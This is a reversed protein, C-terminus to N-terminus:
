LNKILLERVQEVLFDFGFKTNPELVSAQQSTEIVKKEFDEYDGYKAFNFYEKAGSVKIIERITPYNYCVVRNGTAIAEAAWMGFGEFRSSNFLFKSKKLLEFKQYDTASYYADIRDRIDYKAATEELEKTFQRSTIIQLRWKSNMKSFARFCEDYHKRDVLRSIYTVFNEKKCNPVTNMVRSNVVPYVIDIDKRNRKLWKDSHDRTLESIVVIKCDSNRIEKVMPAVYEKESKYEGPVCKEVYPLPDFIFCLAKKNYREAMKIAQINGFKPYSLYLDAKIDMQDGFSKIIKLETNQYLDYDHVFAPELNTYYDVKFNLSSALEELAKLVSFGFYRGGSYFHCNEEFVAIRKVSRPNDIIEIGQKKKTKDEVIEFGQEKIYYDIKDQEFSEDFEIKKGNKNILM